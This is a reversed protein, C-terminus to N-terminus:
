TWLIALVFSPICGSESRFGPQMNIASREQVFQFGETGNPRFLLCGINKGIIKMKVRFAGDYETSWM